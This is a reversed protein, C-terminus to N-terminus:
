LHLVGCVGTRGQSRNGFSRGPGGGKTKRSGDTGPLSPVGQVSTPGVHGVTFGGSIELSAEALARFIHDISVVGFQPIDILKVKANCVDRKCAECTGTSACCYMLDLVTYICMSELANVTRLPLKLDVLAMQLLRETIKIEKKM